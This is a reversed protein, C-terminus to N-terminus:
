WYSFAVYATVTTTVNLTMDADCVDRAACSKTHNAGTGNMNFTTDFVFGDVYDGVAPDEPSAACWFDYPTKFNDFHYWLNLAADAEPGLPALLFKHWDLPFNKRFHSTSPVACLLQPSPPPLLPPAARLQDGFKRLSM